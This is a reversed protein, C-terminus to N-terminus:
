RDGADWNSSVSVVVHGSAWIEGAQYGVVADLTREQNQLHLRMAPVM